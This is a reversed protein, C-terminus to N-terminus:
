NRDGHPRRVGGAPHALGLRTCRVVHGIGIGDICYLLCRRNRRGAERAAQQVATRRYHVEATRMLRLVLRRNHADAGLGLIGLGFHNALRRTEDDTYPRTASGPVDTLLIRRNRGALAACAILEDPSGPALLMVELAVELLPSGIHTGDHFVLVPGATRLHDFYADSVRRGTNPSNEGGDELTM